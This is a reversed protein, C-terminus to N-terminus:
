VGEVAEIMSQLGAFEVFKAGDLTKDVNEQKFSVMKFLHEDLTDRSIVYRIDSTETAGIRSIRSEGQLLQGSTWYLEGFLLTSCATLTLGTSAALLSLVAVQIKGAQFDNVYEDRKKLSTSGDIKMYRTNSSELTECIGNLFHQHHGFIIFTTGTAALDAVLKKVAPLKAEATMRFLESIIAKRRFAAERIQKSAPVMKPMDKNIQKWEAFKPKLKNSRSPPTELYIQSRILKPLDKLVDKKMRRIMVTKKTLWHLEEKNTNGSYEFFGLISMQGDCYRKTYPRWKPFFEKRVIHAQSFLECSRNLCPTGTLLLVHKMKKLVPTLGKTRKSKVNKLYHSEDVIAIDYKLRKLVDRLKTALEYSAIIYGDEDQIQDTGKNIMTINTSEGIWKQIENKWTYKL